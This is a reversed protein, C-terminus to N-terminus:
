ACGFIRFLSPHRAAFRLTAALEQADIRSGHYCNCVLRGSGAFRAGTQRPLRGGRLRTAVELLERM